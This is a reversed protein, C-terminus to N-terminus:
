PSVWAASEVDIEWVPRDSKLVQGLTCLTVRKESPLAAMTARLRRRLKKLCTHDVAVIVIRDFRALNRCLNEVANTGTVEIEVAISGAECEVLIDVDNVEPTARAGFHECTEVVREICFTHVIQRNIKPVGLHAQGKSTLQLLITAGGVGIPVRNEKVFERAICEDKIDNGLRSNFGHYRYREVTGLYPHEHIGRLFEAVHDDIGDETEGERNTDSPLHIRHADDRTMAPLADLAHEADYLEIPTPPRFRHFPTRVLLPFHYGCMYREIFTGIPATRLAELHGPRLAMAAAMQAAIAPHGVPGLSRIGANELFIPHLRRTSQVLCQIQIGEARYLAIDEAMAQASDEGFVLQGEEHVVLTRENTIRGERSAFLGGQLIEVALQASKTNRNSFPFLITRRGLEAIDWPKAWNGCQRELAGLRIALTSLVVASVKKRDLKEIEIILDRPTPNIDLPLPNSFAGFREYLANVAMDLVNRSFAPASENACFREVFWEKTRFPNGVPALPNIKPDAAVAPRLGRRQLEPVLGAWEEWKRHVFVWKSRTPTHLFGHQARVTKGGGTLCVVLEHRDQLSRSVFVRIEGADGRWVFEEELVNQVTMPLDLERPIFLVHRERLRQLDRITELTEAPPPPFLPQRDNLLSSQAQFQLVPDWPRAAARQLHFWQRPALEPLKEALKKTEVYPLVRSHMDPSWFRNSTGYKEAPGRWPKFTQASM